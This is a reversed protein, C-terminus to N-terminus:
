TYPACARTNANCPLDCHEVWVGSGRAPAATSASEGANPYWSRWAQQPTAGDVLTSEWALGSQGHIICASLYVGRRSSNATAEAVVKDLEALLDAGYAKIAAVDAPSCKSANNWPPVYSQTVMCPVVAIAGLQFHDFKSQLVFVPAQVFEIATAAVICNWEGAPPHEDGGPNPATTLQAATCLPSLAGSANVMGYLYQMDASFNASGSYGSVTHNAEYKFFGADSLGVVRAAGTLEAIRDVNLITALGGASSGTVILEDVAAMGHDRKLAAITDAVNAAGRFWLMTGNPVPQTHGPVPWGSADRGDRRFGTFSAGSCDAIIAPTAPVAAANIAVEALTTQM